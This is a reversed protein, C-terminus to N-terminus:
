CICTCQESKQSQDQNDSRRRPGNQRGIRINYDRNFKRQEFFNNDFLDLHLSVYNFFPILMHVICDENWLPEYMYRM